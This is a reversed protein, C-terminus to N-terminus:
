NLFIIQIKQLNEILLSIALTNTPIYDYVILKNSKKGPEILTTINTVKIFKLRRGATFQLPWFSSCPNVKSRSIRRQVLSGKGDSATMNKM